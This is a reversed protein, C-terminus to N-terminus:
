QKARSKRKAKPKRKQNPKVDESAALMSARIAAMRPTLPMPTFPPLKELGKAIDAFRAKTEASLETTRFAASFPPLDLDVAPMSVASVNGRGRLIRRFFELM